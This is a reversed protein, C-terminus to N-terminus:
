ATSPCCNTATLVPLPPVDDCKVPSVGSSRGLAPFLRNTNANGQSGVPKQLGRKYSYGFVSGTPRWRCPVLHFPDACVQSVKTAPVLRLAPVPSVRGYDRGSQTRGASTRRRGVHSVRQVTTDQRLGTSVWVTQPLVQPFRLDTPVNRQFISCSCFQAAPQPSRALMIPAPKVRTPNRNVMTPTHRDLLAASPACRAASAARALRAWYSATTSREAAVPRM